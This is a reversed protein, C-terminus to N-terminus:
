PLTGKDLYWMRDAGKVLSASVRYSEVPGEQLCGRVLVHVTFSAEIESKGASKDARFDEIQFKLPTWISARGMHLEFLRGNWYSRFGDFSAFSGSVRGRNSLLLWMRRYHPMHHSLAAFFDRVAQEPTIRVPRELTILIPYCLVVLIAGGSLLILFALGYHESSLAVYLLFLLVLGSVALLSLSGGWEAGRSWVEEVADSPDLGPRAERSEGAETRNKTKSRRAVAAPIPPPGSPEDAQEPGEAVEYLGGGTQDAASPAPSSPRPSSTDRFLAEADAIGPVPEDPAPLHKDEM